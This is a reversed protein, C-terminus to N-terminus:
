TVLGGNRNEEPNFGLERLERRLYANNVKETALIKEKLKISVTKTKSLHKIKKKKPNDLRRLDGDAIYVYNDDIIDIVFFFRKSDRGAKSFVVQGIELDNLNM